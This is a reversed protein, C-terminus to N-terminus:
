VAGLDTWGWVGPAFSNNNSTNRWRRGNHEVENNVLWAGIAGAPAVWKPLASQDRWTGIVGPEYTNAATLSEWTRGAHTVLANLAYSTPAGTPQVWAPTTPVVVVARWLAPVNPPQWTTETVHAQLCDYEVGGYSRRTGVNVQEGAIWTLVADSDARWVMFLAPVTEPAHETRNHGQRVIVALAGYQYVAGAALWGSSPLPPFADGLADRSPTVALTPWAAADINAADVEGSRLITYDSSAALAALQAATCWVRWIGLGPTPPISEASQAAIDRWAMMGIDALFQPLRRQEIVKAGTEADTVEVSHWPGVVDAVNVM